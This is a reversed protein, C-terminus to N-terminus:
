PGGCPQQARIRLITGWGAAFVYRGGRAMNSVVNAPVPVSALVHKTAPDVCTLPSVIHTLWVADDLPLVASAQETELGWKGVPKLDSAQLFVAAGFNGTASQAWVGRDTAVLIWEYGFSMTSRAVLTGTAADREEIALSNV